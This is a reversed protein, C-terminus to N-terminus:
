QDLQEVVWDPADLAVDHGATPHVVLPAGLRAALRRSNVPDCLRDGESALVKLPVQLAAPSRARSAAFLQRFLVALKVPADDTFSAFHAFHSQGAETNATLQLILRQREVAGSPLARLVTSVAAPRFRQLPGALDSASTNAVVARAFDEPHREVWRLAIMGGLSMAFISWPGETRATLFRARLDDVIGDISTPSERRHETGVGPLDLTLVTAGTRAALRDPLDLWHRRERVLGRLLLWNM